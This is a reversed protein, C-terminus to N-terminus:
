EEEDGDLPVNFQELWEAQEENRRDKEDQPLARWAADERAMQEAQKAAEEQEWEDICNTM